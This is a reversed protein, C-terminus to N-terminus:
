AFRSGAPIPHLPFHPLMRRPQSPRALQTTLARYTLESIELKFHSDSEVTTHEGDYEVDIGGARLDKKHVAVTFAAGTKKEGPLNGAALRIMAQAAESRGDPHSKFDEFESIDLRTHTRGKKAVRSGVVAMRTSLMRREGDEFFVLDPADAVTNVCLAVELPFRTLAFRELPNGSHKMEDLRKAALATGGISFYLSPRRLSEAGDPSQVKVELPHLDIARGELLIKELSDKGTLQAVGDCANGERSGFLPLRNFGREVAEEQLLGEIVYSRLGDGSRHLIVDGPELVKYMGDWLRRVDDMLPVDPDDSREVNIPIKDIRLGEVEHEYQGANSSNPNSIVVAREYTGSDTKLSMNDTIIRRDESM